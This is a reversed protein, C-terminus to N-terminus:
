LLQLIADEVIEPKLLDMCNPKRDCTSRYCALCDINASLKIGRGYVEFENISTPGFFVVLKKGLALAAHAAMTDSSVVVNCIDLVSLFKRLSNDCGGSVVKDGFKKKLIDIKLKEDIGGLLLVQVKRRLLREILEEYHAIPWIKNQWRRGAGTNLGIIPGRRDLTKEKCFAEGDEKDKKSLNLPIYTDSENLELMDLIIQQYTRTNRKKINDNIGMLFWEHAKHNSSIIQGSNGLFFGVKEKAKCLSAMLMAARSTDPNIVLDFSATQLLHTTFPDGYDLVEDVFEVNEFLPIANERTIWVISSDPYENRLPPLIAMTRLVDGLADLKIVAVRRGIKEFYPCSHCLVGEKKHFKCPRDHLFYRCDQKLCSDDM